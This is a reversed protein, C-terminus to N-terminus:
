WGASPSDLLTPGSPSRLESDIRELVIRTLEFRETITFQPTFGDVHQTRAEILFPGHSLIVRHINLWRGSAEISYQWARIIDGMVPAGVEYRSFEEFGKPPLVSVGKETRTVEPIQGSSVANQAFETSSTLFINSEALLFFILDSEYAVTAAAVYDENEFLTGWLTGFPVAEDAASFYRFEFRPPLDEPQLLMAKLDVQSIDVPETKPTVIKDPLPPPSSTCGVALLLLLSLLGPLVRTVSIVKIM